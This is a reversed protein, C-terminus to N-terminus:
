SFSFWFRTWRRSGTFLLSIIIHYVCLVLFLASFLLGFGVIWPLFVFIFPGFSRLGLQKSIHSTRAKLLDWWVNHCVEEESLSCVLFCIFLQECWFKWAKLKVWPCPNFNWHHLLVAFVCFLQEGGSSLSQNSEFCKAFSGQIFVGIQLCQKPPWVQSFNFLENSKLHFWFHWHEIPYDFASLWLSNENESGLTKGLMACRAHEMLTTTANATVVTLTKDPVKRFIWSQDTWSIGNLNPKWDSEAVKPWNQNKEVTQTCHNQVTKAVKPWKQIIEAPKSCNWISLATCITSQWIHVIWWPELSKPHALPQPRFPSGREEKRLIYRFQYHRSVEVGYTIRFCMKPRPRYQRILSIEQSNGWRCGYPSDRM